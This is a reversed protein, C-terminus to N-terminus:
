VARKITRDNNKKSARQLQACRYILRRKASMQVRSFFQLEAVVDSTYRSLANRSVGLETTLEGLSKGRLLDPRVVYILAVFRKLIVGTNQSGSASFTLFWQFTEFVLRDVLEEDSIADADIAAYDFNVFNEFNQPQSQM